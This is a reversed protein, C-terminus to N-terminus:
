PKSLSKSITIDKIYIKWGWGWGVKRKNKKVFIYIKRSM